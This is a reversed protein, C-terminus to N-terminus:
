VATTTVGARERDPLESSRLRRVTDRFIESIAQLGDTGYDYNGDAYPAASRVLSPEFTSGEEWENLTSLIIWKENYIHEGDTEMRSESFVVPTFSAATNLIQRLQQPTRATVRGQNALGRGEVLSEFLDRDFHPMTGSFHIKGFRAAVATQARLNSALQSASQSADWEVNSRDCGGCTDWPLGCAHNYVGDIANMVQVAGPVNAGALGCIHETLIIFPNGVVPTLAQRIAAIMNLFDGYNNVYQNGWFIVVPRLNGARDKIRGYKANRMETGWAIVENQIKTRTAPFGELGAMHVLKVRGLNTARWLSTRFNALPNDGVPQYYGSLFDVNFQNCWAAVQEGYAQTKRDILGGGFAPQRRTWNPRVGGRTWSYTTLIVNYKTHVTVFEGPVPISSM